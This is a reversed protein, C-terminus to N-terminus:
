FNKIEDFRTQHETNWEFNNQNDLSTTFHDYIYNCKIFM